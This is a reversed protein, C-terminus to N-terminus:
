RHEWRNAPKPPINPLEDQVPRGTEFRMLEAIFTLEVAGTEGNRNKALILRARGAEAEKAADDTAYYATRYLLGVMDADQEIAGSGRLDSLMPRKDARQELGRNLQSLADMERLFVDLSQTLARCNEYVVRLRPTATDIRDGRLQDRNVM